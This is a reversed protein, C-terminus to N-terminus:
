RPLEAEPRETRELTDAIESGATRDADQVSGVVHHSWPTGAAWDRHSEESVHPNPASQARESTGSTAFGGSANGGRMGPDDSNRSSWDDQGSGSNGRETTDGSWTTRDSASPERRNEEQREYGAGQSDSRGVSAYARDGTSSMRNEGTQRNGEERRSDGSQQARGADAHEFVKEMEKEKKEHDRCTHGEVQEVIEHINEEFREECPDCKPSQKKM